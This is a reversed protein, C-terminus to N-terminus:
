GINILNSKIVKSLFWFKLSSNDKSLLSLMECCSKSLVINDKYIFYTCTEFYIPQVILIAAGPVWWFYVIKSPEDHVFWYVFLQTAQSRFGKLRHRDSQKQDSQELVFFSFPVLGSSTLDFAHYLDVKWLTNFIQIKWLTNFLPIEASPCKPKQVKLCKPASIKWMPLYSRLSLKKIFLHNIHRYYYISQEHIHHISSKPHSTM